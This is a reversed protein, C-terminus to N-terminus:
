STWRGPPTVWAAVDDDRARVCQKGVAKQLLMVDCGAHRLMSCEFPKFCISTQGGDRCRLWDVVGWFSTRMPLVDIAIM